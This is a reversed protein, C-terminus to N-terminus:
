LTHYFTHTAYSFKPFFSSIRVVKLLPMQRFSIMYIKLFLSFLLQSLFKGQRLRICCPFYDSKIGNSKVCSKANEYLNKVVNLFNGSINYLGLKSWLFQRDIKDFAAKLDIFACIYNRINACNIFV